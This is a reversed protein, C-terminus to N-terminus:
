NGTVEYYITMIIHFTACGALGWALAPDPIHPVINGLGFGWVAHKIAKM